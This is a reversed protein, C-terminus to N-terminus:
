SKTYTSTSFPTPAHSVSDLNVTYGAPTVPSAETYAPLRAGNESVSVTRTPYGRHAQEVGFPVLTTQSM